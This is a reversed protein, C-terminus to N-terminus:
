EPSIERQQDVMFAMIDEGTIAYGNSSLQSFIQGADFDFSSLLAQHLEMLRFPISNVQQVAAGSGCLIKRHDV